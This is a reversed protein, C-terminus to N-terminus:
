SYRLVHQQCKDAAYGRALTRRECGSIFSPDRLHTLPCSCCPRHTAKLRIPWQKLFAKSTTFVVSMKIYRFLFDPKNCFMAFMVDVFFREQTFPGLPFGAFSCAVFSMECLYSHREIKNRAKAM